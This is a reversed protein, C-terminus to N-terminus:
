FNVVTKGYYFKLWNEIINYRLMCAKCMKYDGNLVPMSQDFYKLTCMKYCALCRSVCVTNEIENLEFLYDLLSNVTEKFLYNPTTRGHRSQHEFYVCKLHHQMSPREILKTIQKGHVTKRWVKYSNFLYGKIVIVTATQNNRVVTFAPIYDQVTSWDAYYTEVFPNFENM